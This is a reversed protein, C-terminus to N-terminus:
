RQHKVELKKGLKISNFVEFVDEVRICSNTEEETLGFMKLIIPHKEASSTIFDWERTGVEYTMELFDKYSDGSRDIWGYITYANTEKNYVFRDWQVFSFHMMMTEINKKTRKSMKMYKYLQSINVNQEQYNTTLKRQM